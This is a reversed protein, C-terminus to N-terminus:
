RAMIDDIIKKLTSTVVDASSGRMQALDLAVADERDRGKKDVQIALKVTAGLYEVGIDIANIVNRFQAPPQFKADFRQAHPKSDWESFRYDLAGMADRIRELDHNRVTIPLEVDVDSAWNIDVVAHLYWYVERGSPAVGSPLDLDFPLPLVDNHLAKWPGQRVLCRDWVHGKGPGDAHKEILEVTISAVTENDLATFEVFGEIKSGSWATDQKLALLIVGNGNADQRRYSYEKPLPQSALQAAAQPPAAQAQMVQQQHQAVQAAFAPQAPAQAIAGGASWRVGLPVSGLYVQMGPQLVVPSAGVSQGNVWTGNASGLDRIWLQGNTLWVEAHRRSLGAELHALQSATPDRGVFVRNNYLDLGVQSAGLQLVVAPNSM